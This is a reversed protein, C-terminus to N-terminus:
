HRVRTILFESLKGVFVVKTIRFSFLSVSRFLRQTGTFYVEINKLYLAGAHQFIKAFKKCLFYM